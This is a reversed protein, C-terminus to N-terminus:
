RQDMILKDQLLLAGAVAALLDREAPALDPLLRVAGENITEVAGVVREERRIVYGVAAVSTGASTDRQGELTYAAGGERQVTGGPARDGRSGIQLKWAEATDAVARLTCSLSTSQDLTIEVTRGLQVGQELDRNNCSVTWRDVSDPAARLRFGYRQELVTKGKLADVVGGRSRVSGRSVDHVEYGGFSLRQGMRWGQRGRVTWEPVGALPAPVSMRAAGCGAVVLTGLVVALRARM